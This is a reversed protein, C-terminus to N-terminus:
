KRLKLMMNCGRQFEFPVKVTEAEVGMSGLTSLVEDLRPYTRGDLGCLPFVRVEESSVRLLEKLCDIHFDFDLWDSYLFLFHGSLVLSFGGDPLPLRPLEGHRYRGEEYGRPFDLAFLEAARKRLTIVEDRDKYHKWTYLHSAEDFKAFVHSIDSRCRERLKEIPLCYSIDCATVDLGLGKAEAAFSSPGAPCDLVAGRSLAERDLDFMSLYEGYTRGIFAIRDIDLRSQKKM